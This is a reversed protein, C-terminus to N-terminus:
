SRYADRKIALVDLVAKVRALHEHWFSKLIDRWGTTPATFAIASLGFRSALFLARQGHWDQSIITVEGQGLRQKAHVISNLTRIGAPDCYIRNEPIGDELLAKKMDKTDHQGATQDDGSILVSDIKGAHFLLDAARVRSEFNLNPKGYSHIRPCGLLLGVPRYPVSSVDSYVRGAASQSVLVWASGTSIIYSGLIVLFAIWCRKANLSKM